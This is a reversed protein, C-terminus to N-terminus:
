LLSGDGRLRATGWGMRGKQKCRAQEEAISSAILYEWFVANRERDAVPFARPVHRTMDDAM